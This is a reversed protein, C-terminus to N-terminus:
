ARRAHGPRRRGVGGQAGGRRRPRARGPVGGGRRADGHTDSGALVPLGAAVAAQRARVKDGLLDLLEPRPGVFTLGAAACARAFAANESLFGYGPHVADAGAEAAVAVIREIDLYAAAGRGPLVRVEDAVMTHLADQDDAPAVAITAIGLEAAARAVRM